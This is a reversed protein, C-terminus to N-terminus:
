NRDQQETDVGTLQLDEAETRREEEKTNRDAVTPFLLKQKRYKKVCNTASPCFLKYKLCCLKTAM